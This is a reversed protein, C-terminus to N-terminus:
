QFSIEDAKDSSTDETEELSPDARQVKTKAIVSSSGDEFDILYSTSTSHKVKGAVYNKGAILFIEFTWASVSWWFVKSWSNCMRWWWDGWDKYPIKIKCTGLKKMKKQRQKQQKKQKQEEEKKRLQELLEKDNLVERHEKQMKKRKEKTNQLASSALNSGLKFVAITAKHLAKKISCAWSSSHICNSNHATMNSRLNDNTINFENNVKM